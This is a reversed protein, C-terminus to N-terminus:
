SFLAQWSWQAIIAHITIVSVLGAFALAREFMRMQVLASRPRITNTGTLLRLAVVVAISIVIFGLPVGLGHAYVGIALLLGISVAYLHLRRRFVQRLIQGGDFKWVPLINGLNFIACILVGVLLEDRWPGLPLGAVHAFWLGAAVFASFGAGMLAAFAIEFHSDYPRGGMAFGGLLPLFVMRATKHGSIRFAAVHGLEHLAVVMTLAAALFFGDLHLGFLPWLLLTSVGAMAFQTEIRDFWGGRTYTGTSAWQKFQRAMRRMAFFRYVMFAIGRYRDTEAFTVSTKDGQADLSVSQHHHEWFSDALSTDHTYRLAFTENPVDEVLEFTRKIPEGDRGTHETTICGTRGDSRAIETASHHWCANEGFPYLASWVEGVDLDVPVTTRVTRVGLPAAMVLWMLLLTVILLVALM